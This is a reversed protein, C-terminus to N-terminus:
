RYQDRPPPVPRTPQATPRRQSTLTTRPRVPAAVLDSVSFVGDYASEAHESEDIGNAEVEHDVRFGFLKHVIWALILTAVFSYGMVALAAISQRLLQTVGGGYLLGNGGAPNVSADAFVGILLTGVLGGVLHVGVVDLSDDYGFVFKLSVALACCVGAVLGIVLAGLPGVFGCAPTVAVLGAVAGSSAGITTPNGDRWQEVVIWALSAAGTAVTTNTFAVAALDGATLASGANFGYWGFWLLAAGLLTFPVNHPRTISRPWGHRKGIVLAVALAAAGANIHVATGGAFDFAKLRNIIWGGVDTSNGSADTDTFGSSSFVWHAVPFYVVTTWVVTFVTWAWFRTRGAIAGSILATTIVAFMLQFMVFAMTPIQHGAPGSVTGQTMRLLAHSMGGVLGQFADNGFAESYGYLLWLTSVVGLCVFNMMLMNLVSKGGVMGGYFFALGPTMLMVLAASALVWATDGSNM